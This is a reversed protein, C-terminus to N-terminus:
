STREMQKRIENLVGENDWHVGGILPFDLYEKKIDLEHKFYQMPDIGNLRLEKVFEDRNENREQVEQKVEDQKNVLRVNHGKLNLIHEAKATMEMLRDWTWDEMQDYTYEPMAAKVVAMCQQDFLQVKRKSGEYMDLVSDLNTFGSVELIYPAVHQSLGAFPCEAFNFSEPYLLATQCIADEMEEDDITIDIIDRYEKRSLSKFIFERNYLLVYIIKHGKHMEKYYAIDYVSVSM